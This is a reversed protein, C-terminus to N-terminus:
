TGSEGEGSGKDLELSGEVASLLRSLVDEADYKGSVKVAVKEGAMALELARVFM